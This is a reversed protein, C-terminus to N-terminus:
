ARPAPEAAPEAAATTETSEAPLRPLPQYTGDPKREFRTTATAVASQQSIDTILIQLHTLAKRRQEMIENKTVLYQALGKDANAFVAQKDTKMQGPVLELAKTSLQVETDNNTSVVVAKLEDGVSFVDGVAEVREKSIMNVHLRGKVNNDLTVIAKLPSIVDIGRVRFSTTAAEPTAEAAAYCILPRLFSASVAVRCQLLQAEVWILHEGRFRNSAGAGRAGNNKTAAKDPDCLEGAFMNSGYLAKIHNRHKIPRCEQGHQPLAPSPVMSLSPQAPSPQAPSPQAPSPQAPSPQAPSPQAPSPQAPSPQAPSPQAPSPQAPSPQAPSPQAPSPQAPSPQAPSPQAPSPQAPSPQAPSPQAPSPQAPSPQAPSPQAPSPQAPSPQAPSPQAPSPQAPSPQAPSPQAPSPQAPSPQAPSPQAPSPQAPSPQAPSPQAPSPQAPSPQAPSPQAPSPQAPSPQAPSPQAPSPQAPSPQAPSPQAPSPQAPSNKNLWLNVNGVAQHYCMQRHLAWWWGTKDCAAMTAKSPWIALQLARSADKSALTSCTCTSAEPSSVLHAGQQHSHRMQPLLSLKM